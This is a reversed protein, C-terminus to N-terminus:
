TVHGVRSTVPYTRVPSMTSVKFRSCRQCEPIWGPKRSHHSSFDSQGPFLPLGQVLFLVEDMFPLLLFHAKGFQAPAVLDATLCAVLPNVTILLSPRLVQLLVASSRQMVRLRHQGFYFIVNAIKPGLM